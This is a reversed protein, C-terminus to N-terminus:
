EVSTFDVYYNSALKFQGIAAPNNVSINITGSPTAKSWSENESNDGTVAEFRIDEQTVVGNSGHTAIERCSMKCRIVSM